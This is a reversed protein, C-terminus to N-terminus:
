SAPPSSSSPVPGTRRNPMAVKACQVLAIGTKALEFCRHGIFLVGLAPLRGARPGPHLSTALRSRLPAAREPLLERTRPPRERELRQLLRRPGLLRRRVLACVRP